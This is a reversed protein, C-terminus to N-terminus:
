WVKKLRANLGVGGNQDRVASVSVRPSVQYQIEIVDRQTSTVDTSVTVFLNGTVRQQVTIRAGANQQNGGLVPDVSLQSIGAIKQVRDTIQGSVASAILNEAGLSGPTPNAASAETTTGFALLNIIDAPPLPPDSSYATRLNDAPGQFHLHLAYQDITVDATANVVAQTTTPNVFDVSGGQVVYRNGRFILDATNINVRGLVVPEAATGRVTLNANAQMSFNPSTANIQNPTSVGLNLNLDQTFSGPAAVTTTTNSLQSILSTLDFQPTVSLRDLRIRGDLYAAAPTGTLTLSGGLTERVTDPYLLSIQNAQMALDFQVDPRFVVGGTATVTGGGMTGRFQSITMREASVQLVGNVNQLGLPLAPTSLSANVVDVEGAVTPSGLSGSTNINLRLQGATTLGPDLAEALELNVTGIATVRLPQASKIPIVGAVQLQTDTGRLAVKDLTVVGNVLSMHVPATAAIAVPAGGPFQSNLKLVPLTVQARVQDLHQLPGQLTAHIETQGKLNGAISPAYTALLPALDIAKTDLTANAMMPATLNVTAQGHIATALATSDLTAHAMHNAVSAQLRIGTLTQNQVSLKSAVLTANFGPNSLTGQGSGDLSITGQVRLNRSAFAQLRDLRLADAHFDVSYAGSQPHITGTAHATGAPLTATLQGQVASGNGQFNLQASQFTERDGALTVAGHTLSVTGQGSPQNVSGGLNVNAALTGSAPLPRGVLKALQDLPMATVIVHAEVPSAESWSWQRLTTSLDFRVRGNSPRPQAAGGGGTAGVLVGHSLSAASPGVALGTALSQWKTDRVQLPAVSLQGALRPAQLSGTVAGTFSGAGYLGVSALPTGTLALKVRGGLTELEHLDRSQLSVTLAARSGLAGSATLTSAPTTLSSNALALQGNAYRAHVTGRLPVPPAGPSALTANLDADGSVRMGDLAGQWRADASANVAGSLGAKGLPLANAGALRVVQDLRAGALHAQLHAVARGTLGTLTLSATARGGIVGAQLNTIALNNQALQYKGALSRVSTSLGAETVALVPSSFTGAARLAEIMEGPHANAWAGDYAATGEVRLAGAPIAPAGFVARAQTADLVMQYSAQVQPAAYNRLRAQLDLRSNGATLELRSVDLNRPTATFALSLGHTIPQYHEWRLHGTQYSLTGTYKRAAPAYAASFGLQGLDAQLAHERSNFYVEGRNVAAHRIGMAFVNNGGGSSSKGFVPLNTRGSADQYVWVVPHDAVLNNLYWTRHWLSTIQVGLRLHDLRLLPPNAYPAAGPVVVDYVDVSPALGNWELRYNGIEVPTGLAQSAQSVAQSLLYRHIRANHLLLWVGAVAILALVAVVGAV